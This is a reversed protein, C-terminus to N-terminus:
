IQTECRSGAEEGTLVCELVPFWCNLVRILVHFCKLDPFHNLLVLMMLDLDLSRKLDFKLDLILDALVKLFIVLDVSAKLALELDLSSLVGGPDLLTPSDTAIGGPQQGDAVLHWAWQM